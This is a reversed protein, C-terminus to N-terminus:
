GAERTKVYRVVEPSLESHVLPSYRDKLMNWLGVARAESSYKFLNHGELEPPWIVRSNFVTSSVLGTVLHIQLFQGIEDMLQSNAYMPAEFVKPPSGAIFFYFYDDAWPGHDDTWEGILWLEKLAFSWITEGKSQYRVFGDKAFVFDDRNLDHQVM